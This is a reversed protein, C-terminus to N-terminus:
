TEGNKAERSGFAGGGPDVLWVGRGNIVHYLLTYTCIAFVYLTISFDFSYFGNGPPLTTIM